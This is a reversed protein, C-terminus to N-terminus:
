ADAKKLFKFPVTKHKIIFLLASQFHFREAAYLADWDVVRDVHNVGFEDVDALQKLTPVEFGEQRARDIILGYVGPYVPAAEEPEQPVVAAAFSSLVAARAEERLESARFEGIGRKESYEYTLPEVLGGIFLNIISPDFGEATQMRVVIYQANFYYVFLRFEEPSLRAKAEELARTAIDASSQTQETM